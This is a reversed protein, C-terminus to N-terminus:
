NATYDPAQWLADEKLSPSIRHKSLFAEALARYRKWPIRGTREWEGWTGEDVGLRRASEKITWGNARRIALLREALNERPPFPDYGLFRIIAPISTIPPETYGKEWNLVTIDNARLRLGAKKQTLGLELRRKRLHEGLTRPEFDSEKPKLAKLTVPLGPLFAVRGHPRIDILFQSEVQSVIGIAHGSIRARQSGLERM